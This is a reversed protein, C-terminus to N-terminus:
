TGFCCCSIYLDMLIYHTVFYKCNYSVGLGVHNCLLSGLQQYWQQQLLTSFLLKEQSHSTSQSFVKAGTVSSSMTSFSNGTRLFSDPKHHWISQKTLVSRGWSDQVSLPARGPFLQGCYIDAQITTTCRRPCLTPNWCDSTTYICPPKIVLLTRQCTRCRKPLWVSWFPLSQCPCSM